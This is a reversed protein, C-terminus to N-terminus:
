QRNASASLGCYQRLAAAGYRLNWQEIIWDPTYTFCISRNILPRAEVPVPPPPHSLTHPRSSPFSLGTFPSPPSTLPVSVKLTHTHTQSPFPNCVRRTHATTPLLPLIPLRAHLPHPGQIYSPHDTILQTNSAQHVKEDRNIYLKNM